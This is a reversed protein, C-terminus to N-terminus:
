LSTLLKVKRSCRWEEDEEFFMSQDTMIQGELLWWIKLIWSRHYNMGANKHEMWSTAGTNPHFNWSSVAQQQKNSSTACVDLRISSIASSDSVGGPNAKHKSTRCPLLFPQYRRFSGTVWVKVRTLWKKKEKKREPERRQLPKAEERGKRTEGWKRWKKGGEGERSRHPKNDPLPM